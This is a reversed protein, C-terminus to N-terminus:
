AYQGLRLPRFERGDGSFFRSFGEFYELRLAQITVIAGELVLIFLNGLIVTILHGAPAMTEALTFVAIALAVHNLSFATVRLFSLSNSVYGTITEFTEIFVVLMREGMPAETTRWRYVLIAGLSLSSVVLSIWGCEGTTYLDNVACLLALYLTISALGNSEFVAALYEGMVLRNYISVLTVLVLFGIGWAFALKLMLIPDTLPAIWLPHVYEEYGFVSGYLVGFLMAALGGSMVFPTFSGLKRRALWAVLLITGGHGIDGFMMGFMLVFTLAFLLTPDVERYRPIGYQKVLNAFPALLRSRLMVTPVERLEDRRPDRASLLFPNPLEQQLRQEVAAIERKPMWGSVIALQGSSRAATEMRVFPEALLLTRRARELPARIEESWREIGDRAQQRQEAIQRRRQQLEQRLQQPEAHLEPPIELPQFGASDLISRIENEREGRPGVVIIHASGGSLLYNFVMHDALEAAESLRGLNARAVVGLQLDLFQKEGQLLSLDINLNAFNDLAKDLDDVLREQESLRRLEEEFASYRAWVEGLWANLEGLEQESVVRPKGLEPPPATPLHVRIKELRGVAEVYYERYREGPINPFLAENCERCDPHFVELEALTLSVQPLDDSLVQLVVHKM